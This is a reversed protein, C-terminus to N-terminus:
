KQKQKAEELKKKLIEERAKIQALEKEIEQVTPQHDVFNREAMWDDRLFKTMYNRISDPLIVVCRQGAKLEKAAQVAAWVATGSSGGCLLGEERILKRAMLFSNKDNSKIWRDVLKRNLVDPVFDYGIGEVEYTGVKDKEPDALLSSCLQNSM